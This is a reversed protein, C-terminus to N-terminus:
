NKTGAQLLKILLVELVLGPRGSTKIGLDAEHLSQFISNFDEQTFFPVHKILAKYTSIRMKRPKKGKQEWLNYFQRYHWNLPALVATADYSKKESLSKLIRFTKTKQGSIISDILNFSTYDRTIGTSDSIDKDEIKKLGSLALKEIEAALLGTEPGVSELLLEVADESMKLGKDSARKKIWKPIDGERISLHYVPRGATLNSKPEKQSFVLMCTSECPKKFYPGLAKTQAASFQHFDKLIVLRRPASFPFTYATDMIEQPVASPYFVNYNFDKQDPSIVADVAKSLADELFFIEKSWLFYLPGPLSKEIEKKLSTM